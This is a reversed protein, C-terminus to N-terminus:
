GNEELDTMSGNESLVKVKLEAQALLDQCRKILARGREFLGMTGELDRNEGELAALIEELEELAKEYSLTEVAGSTKAM